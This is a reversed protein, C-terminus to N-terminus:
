SLKSVAACLQTENVIEEIKAPSQTWDLAGFFLRFRDIHWRFYALLWLNKGKAVLEIGVPIPRKELWDTSGYDTQLQTEFAFSMLNCYDFKLPDDSFIYVARFDGTPDAVHLYDNYWLVHRDKLTHVSCSEAQSRQPNHLVPPLSEWTIMDETVM